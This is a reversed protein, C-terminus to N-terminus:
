EGTSKGECDGRCNEKGNREEGKVYNSMKQYSLYLLYPTNVIGKSPYSLIKKGFFHTIKDRKKIGEYLILRKLVM